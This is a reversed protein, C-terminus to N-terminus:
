PIFSDWRRGVLVSVTEGVGSAEERALSIGGDTSLDSGEWSRQSGSEAFHGWEEVEAEREVSEEETTFLGACTEKMLPLFPSFFSPLFSPLSFSLFGFFFANRWVPPEKVTFYKELKEERM